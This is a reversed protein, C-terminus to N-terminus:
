SFGPNIRVSSRSLQEIENGPKVNILLKRGTNEYEVEETTPPPVVNKIRSGKVRIKDGSVVKLDNSIDVRLERADKNEVIARWCKDDKKTQLIDLYQM